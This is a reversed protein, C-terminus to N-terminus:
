VKLQSVLFKMRSLQSALPEPGYRLSVYLTRIEDIENRLDPRRAAVRGLYDDPGEHPERPM